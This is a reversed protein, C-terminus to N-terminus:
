VSPDVASKVFPTVHATPEFAVTVALPRDEDGRDLARTINAFTCDAEATGITDEARALTGGCALKMAFFLLAEPRM